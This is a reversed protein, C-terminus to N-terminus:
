GEGKLREVHGRAGPGRALDRALFAVTEEMADAFGFPANVVLFGAASLRPGSKHSVDEAHAEPVTEVGVDLEIQLLRTIGANLLEGIGADVEAPTKRPYWLAYIGTAFRRHAHGIAGAADRWESGNEYPPDVLVLGRRERPPLLGPLERYGDGELVRANPASGLAGRLATADEPHKEIAVLRDQPRLLRLALAPSGPYAGGFNKACDLYAALAPPMAAKAERKAALRLYADEAEGTKRAEEGQLDYLGRGAHSDIVVFPSKKKRLHELIAVLATHKLVDAFNGAHYAHRYNM